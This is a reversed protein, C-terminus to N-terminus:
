NIGAHVVLPQHNELRLEGARKGHHATVSVDEGADNPVRPVASIQRNQDLILRRAGAARMRTLSRLSKACAAPRPARGRNATQANLVTFHRDGEVRFHPGRGVANGFFALYQILIAVLDAETHPEIARVVEGVLGFYADRGM